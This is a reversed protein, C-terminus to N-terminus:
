ASSPLCAGQTFVARRKRKRKRKRKKLKM